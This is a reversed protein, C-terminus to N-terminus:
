LKKEAVVGLVTIELEKASVKKAAEVFTKFHATTSHADIAAQDKWKEVFFFVTADDASRLFDYFICGPEKRTGAVVARAASLLTDEEGLKATAKAVIIKATGAPASNGAITDYITIETKVATDKLVAGFTAFHAAAFHADVAAQDKWKEAFFFQYPDETSRLFDYSINGPEKRTAAVVTRAGRVLAEEEDSKATIKAIILKQGPGAAAPSAVPAVAPQAVPPTAPQASTPAVPQPSTTGTGAGAGAPKSASNVPVDPDEKACGGFITAAAVGAVTLGANRVFARRTLQSAPSNETTKM